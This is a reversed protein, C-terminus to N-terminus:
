SVNNRNESAALTINKESIYLFIEFDHIRVQGIYM